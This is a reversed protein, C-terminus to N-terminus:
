HGSESFYGTLRTDYTNIMPLQMINIELERKDLKESLFKNILQRRHVDTRYLRIISKEIQYRSLSIIYVGGKLQASFGLVKCNPYIKIDKFFLLNKYASLKHPKGSIKIQGESIILESVNLKEIDKIQLFYKDIGEYLTIDDFQHDVTAELTIKEIKREVDMMALLLCALWM